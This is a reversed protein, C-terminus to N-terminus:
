KCNANYRQKKNYIIYVQPIVQSANSDPVAPLPQQGDQAPVRGDLKDLMARLLVIPSFQGILPSSKPPQVIEIKIIFFIRPSSPM